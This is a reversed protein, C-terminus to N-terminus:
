NQIQILENYFKNVKLTKGVAWSEVCFSTSQIFSFFALPSSALLGFVLRASLLHFSHRLFSYLVDLLLPPQIHQNSYTCIQLQNSCSSPPLHSSSKGSSGKIVNSANLTSLLRLDLKDESPM